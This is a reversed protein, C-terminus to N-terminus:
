SKFGLLTQLVVRLSLPLQERSSLIYIIQVISLLDRYSNYMTTQFCGYVVATNSNKLLAKNTNFDM